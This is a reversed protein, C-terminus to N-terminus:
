SRDSAPDPSDPLTLDEIPVVSVPGQLWRALAAILWPGRIEPREYGLLRLNRRRSVAAATVTIEGDRGVTAYLEIIRGLDTGDVSVATRGLLDSVRM